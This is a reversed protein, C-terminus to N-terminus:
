GEKTLEKIKAAAAILRDKYVTRKAKLVIRPPDILSVTFLVGKVAVEEGEAFVMEPAQERAFAAEKESLPVLDRGDWGM